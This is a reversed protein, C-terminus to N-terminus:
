ISLEEKAPNFDPNLRLSREFNLKAESGFGESKAIVGQYYYYRFDNEDIYKAISLYNKALSLNRKEIEIRAMDIWADKLRLNLALSKKLYPVERDKDYLAMYYYAEACDSHTKLVKALVDKAKKDDSLVKYVVATKVLSIPNKKDNSAAKEYYKLAEKFNKNRYEIDGLVLLAMVNNKDIKYSKSALDQAKEFEKMDFYVRSLLAYIDKNYKKKASVAGQLTRMAKNLENEYYYHYALHYNKLAEVKNSKYLIYQELSSVKDSFESSMFPSSKIQEVIKLASKTKNEQSLIEAKLKQYNINNQNKSIATNIFKLAQEKEGSKISGLAALYNAYDSGEMLMSNKMLEATAERSQDNYIINSFIEGLYVEDSKSLNVSPFYFRRIEENLILAIENDKVKKLSTDALNFFGIDAMKAAMQLYGYDSQPMSEIMMQFDNYASKVNSQMFRNLGIAYQNYIENKSLTVKKVDFYSFGSSVPNLQPATHLVPNAPQIEDYINQAQTCNACLMLVILSLKVKNLILM